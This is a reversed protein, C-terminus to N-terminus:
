YYMTRVFYRTCVEHIDEFYRNFLAWFIKHGKLIVNEDLKQQNHTLLVLYTTHLTNLKAEISAVPSKPNDHELAQYVYKKLTPLMMVDSHIIVIM